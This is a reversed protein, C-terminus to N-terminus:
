NEKSKFKELYFRVNGEWDECGIVSIPCYRSALFSLFNQFKYQGYQFYRARNKEITNICIARCSELSNCYESKIGYPYYTKFGGEAIFISDAIEDNTYNLDDAFATCVMILLILFTNIIINKIM